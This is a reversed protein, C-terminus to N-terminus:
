SYIVHLTTCLLISCLFMTAYTTKLFADTSVRAVPHLVWCNFKLFSHEILNLDPSVGDLALKWYAINGKLCHVLDSV